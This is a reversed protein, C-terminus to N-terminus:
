AKEKKQTENKPEIFESKKRRALQKSFIELHRSVKQVDNMFSTFQEPNMNFNEAYVTGIKMFTETEKKVRADISKQVMKYFFPKNKPEIEYKEMLLSVAHAAYKKDMKITSQQRYKALDNKPLLKMKETERDLAARMKKARKTIYRHTGAM